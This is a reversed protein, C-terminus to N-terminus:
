NHKHAHKCGNPGPSKFQVLYVGHRQQNGTLNPSGDDNEGLARNIPRMIFKITDNCSAHIEPYGDFDGMKGLAQNRCSGARAFCHM